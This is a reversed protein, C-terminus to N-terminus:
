GPGPAYPRAAAPPSSAPWCVSVSLEMGAITTPQTRCELELLTGDKRTLRLRDGSGNPAAQELLEDRTFGLLECAYGNVALYRGDEDAVLVVIPGGDIAEGLLSAQVLPQAVNSV